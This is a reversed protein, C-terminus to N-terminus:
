ELSEHCGPCRHGPDPGIVTGEGTGPDPMEVHADSWDGEWGCGPCRCESMIQELLAQAAEDDASAEGAVAPLIRDLILTQHRTVVVQKEGPSPGGARGARGDENRM